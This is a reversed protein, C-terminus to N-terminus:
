PSPEPAFGPLGALQVLVAETGDAQECNALFASGDPAWAIADVQQQCVALTTANTGYLTVSGKGTDFTALVGSPSVSLHDAYPLDGPLPSGAADFPAIRGRQWEAVLLTTGQWALSAVGGVTLTTVRGTAVDLIAAGAAGATAWPWALHGGSADFAPAGRDGILPAQVSAVPTLDASRLVQLWGTDEGGTGQARQTVHLVALLSGDPSWGLPIGPEPTRMTGSQWVVYQPRTPNSWPQVIAAVRHGPAAIGAFTAVAPTLAPSDLSGSLAQGGSSVPGVLFTSAGTWVLYSGPIDRLHTGDRGYLHVALEQGPRGNAVDDLAFFRGDASWPDSAPMGPGVVRIKPAPTATSTPTPASLTPSPSPVPGACAALLLAGVVVALLRVLILRAAAPGQQM